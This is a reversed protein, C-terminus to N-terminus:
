DNQFSFSVNTQTCKKFAFVLKKFNCSFLKLHNQKPDLVLTNLLAGLHDYWVELTTLIVLENIHLDLGCVAPQLSGFEIQIFVHDDERTRRVM